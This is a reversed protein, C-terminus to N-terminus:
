NNIKGVTKEYQIQIIFQTNPDTIYQGNDLTCNSLQYQGQKLYLGMQNSPTSTYNFSTLPVYIPESYRSTTGAITQLQCYRVSTACNFVVPFPVLYTSTDFPYILGIEFTSITLPSSLFAYSATLLISTQNLFQFQNYVASNSLYINSLFSCNYVSTPPISTTATQCHATHIYLFLLFVIFM